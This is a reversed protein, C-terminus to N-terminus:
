WEVMQSAPAMEPPVWVSVNMSLSKVCTLCLGFSTCPWVQTCDHGDLCGAWTWAFKQKGPNNPNAKGLLGPNKGFNRWGGSEEPRPFKVESAPLGWILVACSKTFPLCPSGRYTLEPYFCLKGTTRFSGGRRFGSILTLSNNRQFWHWQWLHSILVTNCTCMSPLNDGSLLVWLLGTMWMQAGLNNEHSNKLAQTIWASLLTGLTNRSCHWHFLRLARFWDWTGLHPVLRLNLLM